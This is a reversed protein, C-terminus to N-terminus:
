TNAAKVADVQHGQHKLLSAVVQELTRQGDCFRFSGTPPVTDLREDTLDALLSLADRGISLQELLGHLDVNAATYDGDHTGNDHGGDAHDRPAHGRALPARPIRHRDQGAGAPAGPMPTTAQLFGAIRQYRDATHMACVAVTGDGLKERGPCALGLVAEGRASLLGILESIQTDATELLQIGRESM